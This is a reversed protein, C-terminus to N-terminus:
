PYLWLLRLNLSGVWLEDLIIFIYSIIFKRKELAGLFDSDSYKKITFKWGRYCLVVDLIGKIYKLIRKITNWHKIGPNEM